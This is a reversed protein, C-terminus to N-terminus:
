YEELDLRFTKCDDDIADLIQALCDEADTQDEGEYIIDKGKSSVGYIKAGLVYMQIMHDTNFANRGDSIFM